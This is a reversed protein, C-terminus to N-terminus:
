RRRQLTRLRHTFTPGEPPGLHLVAVVASARQRRSMIIRGSAATAGHQPLLLPPSHAAVRQQSSPAALLTAGEGATAKISAGTCRCQRRHPQTSCVASGRSKKKTKTQKNENELNVKLDSAIRNSLRQHISAHLSLLISSCLDNTQVFLLEFISPCVFCLVAALVFFSCAFSFNSSIIPATRCLRSDLFLLLPHLLLCPTVTKPDRAYELGFVGFVMASFFMIPRPKHAHGTGQVNPQCLWM